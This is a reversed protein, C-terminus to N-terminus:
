VRKHTSSSTAEVRIVKGVKEGFRLMKRVTKRYQASMFYCVIAHSTSNLVRLNRSVTEATEMRLTRILFITDHLGTTNFLVSIVASCSESILFTVTMVIILGNTNDSKENLNQNLQSRNKQIIRLHFLMVGVLSSYLFVTILKIIWESSSLFEDFPYGLGNPIAFLFIQECMGFEPPLGGCLEENFNDPLWYSRLFLLPWCHFGFWFGLVGISIGISVRPKALSDVWKNMPFTISLMRIFAMLVALWVSMRRSINSISAWIQLKLSIATLDSRLCTGGGSDFNMFNMYKLLDHFFYLIEFICIEAMIIFVSNLRLPAHLVVIFHFINISICFYQLLHNFVLLFDNIESKELTEPPIEPFFTINSMKGLLFNTGMYIYDLIILEEIYEESENQLALEAVSKMTFVIYFCRIAWKTPKEGLTVNKESSPFFYLFCRQIAIICLLLQNVQTITNLIIILVINCFSVIVEIFFSFQSSTTFLLISALLLYILFYVTKIIKNFHNLIQYAALERDREENQRYVYLYFPFVLVNLVTYIILVPDFLQENYFPLENTFNKM